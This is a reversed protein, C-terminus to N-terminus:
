RQNETAEAADEKTPKLGSRTFGAISLIVKRLEYVILKEFKKM